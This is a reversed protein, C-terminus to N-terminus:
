PLSLFYSLTFMIHAHSATCALVMCLLACQLTILHCRLQMARVPPRPPLMQKKVNKEGLPDSFSSRFHVDFQLSCGICPFSRSATCSAYVGSLWALKVKASYLACHLGLSLSRSSLAEMKQRALSNIIFFVHTSTHTTTPKKAKFHKCALIKCHSRLASVPLREALIM